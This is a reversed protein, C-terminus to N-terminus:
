QTANKKKKNLINKFKNVISKFSFFIGIISAFLIQLLYSGSSPDIYALTKKPFIFTVIEFFLFLTFTNIIMNTLSIIDEFFYGALFNITQGYLL